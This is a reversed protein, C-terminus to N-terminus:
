THNAIVKIEEETLDYLKYVLQDIQREHERVKAQKQSNELYDKDKTISLIQDVFYVIKNQINSSPIKIPLLELTEIDTQAMTRGTELNKLGAALNTLGAYLNYKGPAAEPDSLLQLNEEFCRLARVFDM